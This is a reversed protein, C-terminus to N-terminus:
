SKFWRKWLSLDCLDYSNTVIPDNILDRSQIMSRIAELSPRRPTFGPTTSEATFPTSAAPSCESENTPVGRWRRRASARPAASVDYQDCRAAEVAREFESAAGAEPNMERFTWQYM